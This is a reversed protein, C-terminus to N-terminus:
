QNDGNNNTKGVLLASAGVMCSLILAAFIVVCLGYDAYLINGLVPLSFDPAFKKIPWQPKFFLYM